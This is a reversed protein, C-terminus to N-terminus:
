CRWTIRWTFANRAFISHSHVAHLIGRRLYGGASSRIAALLLALGLSAIAKM